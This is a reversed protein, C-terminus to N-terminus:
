KRASKAVLKQNTIEIAHPVCLQSLWRESSGAASTLLGNFNRASGCIHYGYRRMMLHCFCQLHKYLLCFFWFVPVAHIFNYLVSCFYLYLRLYLTIMAKSRTTPRPKQKCRWLTQFTLFPFSCREVDSNFYELFIKCVLKPWIKCTFVNNHNSLSLNVFSSNQHM